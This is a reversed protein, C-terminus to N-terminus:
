RRSCVLTAEKLSPSRHYRARVLRRHSARSLFPARLSARADFHRCHALGVHAAILLTFVFRYIMFSPFTSSSSLHPLLLTTSTLEKAAVLNKGFSKVLDWIV